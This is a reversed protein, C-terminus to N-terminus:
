TIIGSFFRKSRLMRFFVAMTPLILTPNHILTRVSIFWWNPNYYLLKQLKKQEKFLKLKFPEYNYLKSRHEKLNEKWDLSEKLWNREIALKSFETGELAMMKTVQLTDPLVAKVFSETERLTDKDEGIYGLIINLQFPIKVQRTWYLAKKAQEIKLGKNMNNLIKQSGSEVGYAIGICGARKMIQLLEKDVLDIRSDCFWKINLREKIIGSCVEIVRKRKITFIEDYFWVYKVNGLKKLLKLEDIISEASRGSYKTNAVNCYNCSFPCGKGAYVLAYPRLLLSYIHYPKFSPLLDYAPLPLEEFTKRSSLTSSIVINQNQERHDRYAVGEIRRNDGIKGSKNLVKVVNEIVSFPDEIILVDLNPYEGLIERGFKRAYWSYGITICSPNVRKVIDCVKLEADIIWSNFTFIVCDFNKGKLFESIAEYSLNFGNADIFDIQNDGARLISAIILLTAPTDVRHELILECRGERTVSANKHRPLNLILINM